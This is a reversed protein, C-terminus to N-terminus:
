QCLGFIGSGVEFLGSTLKPRPAVSPTLATQFDRNLMSVLSVGSLSDMGADIFATDLEVQKFNRNKSDLTAVLFLWDFVWPNLNYKFFELLM